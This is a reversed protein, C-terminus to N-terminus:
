GTSSSLFHWLISWPAVFLATGLVLFAAQYAATRFHSRVPWVTWLVALPLFSLLAIEGDAEHASLEVPPEAALEDIWAFLRDM